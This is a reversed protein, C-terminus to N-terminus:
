VHQGGRDLFGHRPLVRLTYTRVHHTVRWHHSTLQPACAMAEDCMTGVWERRGLSRSKCRGEYDSSYSVRRGHGSGWRPLQLRSM